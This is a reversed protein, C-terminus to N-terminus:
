SILRVSGVQITSSLGATVLRTSGFPPINYSFSSGMKGNIMLSLPSASTGPGPGFFQVIGTLPTDGSNELTVQTKWGGGDAFFPLVMSSEVRESRLPAVPLTTMLFENRENTLGRLAIVAVRTSATYALTGQLGDPASFPPQNLLASMHRNPGLVFSGTRVAIGTSNYLSFQILSEQNNPNAIAVGTTVPGNAEAPMIGSEMPATAPVGAESALVGNNWFDIIATGTPATNGSDTLIRLYGITMADDTSLAHAQSPSPTWKWSKGGRKPITYNGGGNLNSVSVTVEVMSQNGAGDRATAKVKHTGNVAKTTDW